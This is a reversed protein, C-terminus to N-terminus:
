LSTVNCNESNWIYFTHDATINVVRFLELHTMDYDGEILHTAGIIQVCNTEETEGTPVPDFSIYKLILESESGDTPLDPSDFYRPASGPWVSSIGGSLILNVICTGQQCIEGEGCGCVSGCVPDREGCPTSSCDPTCVDEGCDDPCTEPNEGDAVNCTGDGCSPNEVCNFSVPDTPRYGELCTCTTENCNEGVVGNNFECQETGEIIGNGCVANEEGGSDGGGTGDSSGDSGSSSGGGSSGEGVEFTDAIDGVEEKGSRLLLVPAISVEKVDSPLFGASGWDVELNFTKVGLPVLDNAGEEIVVSNLGDSVVFRISDITGEGSGRQVTVVVKDDENVYANKIKLETTFKRLDIEEAGEKIFPNVVAWIIGIAAIVLLIIILTTIVGSLGRKKM